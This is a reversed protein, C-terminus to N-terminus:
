NPAPRRPEPRGWHPTSRPPDLPWCGALAPGSALGGCDLGTCPPIRLRRGRRERLERGAPRAPGSGGQYRPQPHREAPLPGAPVRRVPLLRVQPGRGQSPAHPLLNADPRPARLLGGRCRRRRQAGPAGSRAPGPRRMARPTAPSHGVALPPARALRSRRPEPWGRADASQGPLRSVGLAGADGRVRRHAEGEREV